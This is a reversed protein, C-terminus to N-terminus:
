RAGEGTRTRQLTVDRRWRKRLETPAVGMVYAIYRITQGLRRRRRAEAFWAPIRRM